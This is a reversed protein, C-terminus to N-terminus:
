LRMGLGPTTFKNGSKVLITPSGRGFPITFYDLVLSEYELESSYGYKM